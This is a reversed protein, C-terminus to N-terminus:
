HKDLRNIDSEMQEALSFVAKAMAKSFDSATLQSIKEKIGYMKDLTITDNQIIKIRVNVIAEKTDINCEFNYVIGEIYLKDNKYKPDTQNCPNNFYFILYKTIINQPTQAWNNYIDYEIQNSEKRFIMRTSSSFDSSFNRIDINYNKSRSTKIDGLDFYATTPTPTLLSCSCTSVLVALLFLINKSIM